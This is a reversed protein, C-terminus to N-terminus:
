RKKMKFFVFGAGLVGAAILVWAWLPLEIGLLKVKQGLAAGLSFTGTTAVIKGTDSRVSATTPAGHAGNGLGSIMMVDAEGSLPASGVASGSEVWGLGPVFQTGSFYSNGNDSM